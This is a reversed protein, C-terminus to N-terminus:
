MGLRVNVAWVVLSGGSLFGILSLLARQKYRKVLNAESETSLIFAQDSHPSSKLVSLEELKEKHGHEQKVQREADIKAQEWEQPSIDGNRDTDYKDLLLNPDTNKWERLLHSVHERFKQHEVNAVTKFLGIAYLPYNQLILEETYRRSPVVDHKYWTRKHDTFVDADDPDIVCRGTDDELFFLEDSTQQKVVRWRTRRKNGIRTTVKEEIKYRFWVCVTSTLPSITVPGEMMRTDGILEIYGQPASRIKSTPVNEIVRAHHYRLYMHRFAWLSLGSVIIIGLWFEVADLQLLEAELSAIIEQM